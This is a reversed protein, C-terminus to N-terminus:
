YPEYVDIQINLSSLKASIIDLVRDFRLKGLGCGLAPIAISSIKYFECHRILADLGLSIYQYSSLDNFHNKTPFNVILKENEKFTYCTGLRLLNKDCMRKYHIFNNPYKTKFAKALGAGMVGICNVPNVIAQCNSEFISENQIINIM